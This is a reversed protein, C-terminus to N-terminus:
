KFVFVKEMHLNHKKLLQQRFILSWFILHPFNNKSEKEYDLILDVAKSKLYKKLLKANPIVCHGGIAGKPASLVPRVVNKKGLKVYGQNYTTNFDTVAEDFNINTNECLKKMEGHWA